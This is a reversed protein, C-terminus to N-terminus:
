VLQEPMVEEPFGWGRRGLHDHSYLKLSMAPSVQPSGQGRAPVGLARHEAGKSLCAQRGSELSRKAGENVQEWAEHQAFPLLEALM